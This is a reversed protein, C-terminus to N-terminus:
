LGAGPEGQFPGVLGPTNWGGYFGGPQALARVSDLFCDVVGPYFSFHDRLREFEPFPSPYRWAAHRRQEDDTELGFYQAEGKWECRSIGTEPRLLGREVDDAPLYYTPPNGTELVRLCRRTRAIAVSGLCVRVEARVVEIAPPRPFDWVSQEDDRPTVAIAPRQKGTYRWRSRAARAWEPVPLREM